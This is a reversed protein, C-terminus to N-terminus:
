FLYGGGDEMNLLPSDPSLLARKCKRKKKLFLHMKRMYYDSIHDIIDCCFLYIMVHM